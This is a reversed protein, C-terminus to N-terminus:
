LYPKAWSWSREAEASASQMRPLQLSNQPIVSGRRHARHESPESHTQWMRHGAEVDLDAGVVQLRKVHLHSSFRLADRCANRRVQFPGTRYEACIKSLSQSKSRESPNPNQSTRRSQLCYCGDDLALMGSCPELQQRSVEFCSISMSFGGVWLRSDCSARSICCMEYVAISSCGEYM